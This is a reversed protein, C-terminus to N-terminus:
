KMVKNLITLLCDNINHYGVERCYSILKEYVDDRLSISRYGKPPM